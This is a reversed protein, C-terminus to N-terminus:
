RPRHGWRQIMQTILKSTHEGLPPLNRTSAEDPTPTEVFIRHIEELADADALVELEQDDGLRDASAHAERLHEELQEAGAERLVRSSHEDILAILGEISASVRWKQRMLRQLKKYDPAEGPDAVFMADALQLWMGLHLGDPKPRPGQIVGNRDIELLLVEGQTTMVVARGAPINYYGTTTTLQDSM